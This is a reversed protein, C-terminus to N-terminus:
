RNYTRFHTHHGRMEGPPNRPCWPCRLWGRKPITDGCDPHPPTVTNTPAIAHRARLVSTFVAIITFLVLRLGFTPARQQTGAPVSTFVAIIALLFSRPGFTPTPEWVSGTPPTSTRIYPRVEADARGTPNRFYPSVM